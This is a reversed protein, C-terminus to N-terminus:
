VNNEGKVLKQYEEASLNEIDIEKFDEKPPSLVAPPKYGEKRAWTKLTAFFDKYKKGKSQIYDDLAQIRETYDNPFYAKVKEYEEDTFLVNENEGYKKKINKKIDKDQRLRNINSVNVTTQVGMQVTTQGTMQVTFNVTNIKYQNPSGKKGKKFMFFNSEILKDRCRILTKESSMQMVSMLRYNDVTVWESWGAKNFLSILKYWLLQASSPLYNTELWKEFANILDIYTM